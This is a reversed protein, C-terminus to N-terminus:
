QGRKEADLAATLFSLDLFGSKSVDGVYGLQKMLNLPEDMVSDNLIAACSPRNVKLADRILDPSMGIYKHGHEAATSPECLVVGEAQVLARVVNQIAQPNERILEDHVAVCCGPAGPFVDRARCVIQGLEMKEVMTAYPEVMCAADAGKGIFAIIAADGSALRFLQARGGFLSEILRNAVLDKLGGMQPVAVTKVKSLELGKQIVLAPEEIGGGCVVKLPQGQSSALAVRTWPIIAFDVERHLLRAPVIRAAPEVALEVNLGLRSFFGAEKAVYAPLQCIGRLVSFKLSTDM